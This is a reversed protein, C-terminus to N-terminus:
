DSKEEAMLQCVDCPMVFSVHDLHSLLVPDRFGEPGYAEHMGLQFYFEVEDRTVEIGEDELNKEYMLQTFAVYLEGLESEEVCQLTIEPRNLASLKARSM